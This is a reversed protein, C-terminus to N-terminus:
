FSHPYAFPKDGKIGNKTKFMKGENAWPIHTYADPLGESQSRPQTFFLHKGGSM